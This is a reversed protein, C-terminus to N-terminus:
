IHGQWTSTVGRPCGELQGILTYVETEPIKLPDRWSSKMVHIHGKLTFGKESEGSLELVKWVVTGRGVLSLSTWIPLGVTCWQRADDGIHSIRYSPYYEPRELCVQQQASSSVSSLQLCLRLDGRSLPVVSPDQGLQYETLHRTLARVVRVFTRADRQGPKCGSTAADDIISRAPSFIVGSRDAIMVRFVTGTILLTVSFNWFPRLSMHCRAYDAYELIAPTVTAASDDELVVHEDMFLTVKVLASCRDWSPRDETREVLAFEPCFNAIGPTNGGVARTPSWSSLIEAASTHALKERIAGLATDGFLDRDVARLDEEAEAVVRIFSNINEEQETQYCEHCHEIVGDDDKDFRLRELVSPDNYKVNGKLVRQLLEHQDPSHTYRMYEEDSDFYDYYDM